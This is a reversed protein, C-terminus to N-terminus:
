NNQCIFKAIQVIVNLLTSLYMQLKSLYMHLNFFFIYKTIQNFVNQLTSSYVQLKSLYMKYNICICKAFVQGNPPSAVRLTLRVM